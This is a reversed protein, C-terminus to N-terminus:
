HQSLSLYKKLMYLWYCCLLLHYLFSTACVSWSEFKFLNGNSDRLRNSELINYPFNYLLLLVVYLYYIFTCNTITQLLYKTIFWYSLIWNEDHDSSLFRFPDFIVPFLSVELNFIYITNSCSSLKVFVYSQVVVNYNLFFCRDTFTLFFSFVFIKKLMKTCNAVAGHPLGAKHEPPQRKSERESYM